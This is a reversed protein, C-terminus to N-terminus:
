TTGPGEEHDRSLREAWAVRASAESSSINSSAEGPSEGSRSQVEVRQHGDPRGYKLVEAARVAHTCLPLPVHFPTHIKM